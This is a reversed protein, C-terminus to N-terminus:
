RCRILIPRAPAGLIGIFSEILNGKGAAVGLLTPLQSVAIHAAIGALFGTMVPISLLNAIWGLRCLGGVVLIAGTMLALLSALGIYGPSGSAALVALAGAFIPTIASDAGASLLRSSGFLAFGLTGAIFVVFGTVPPFGGLRSTAMQEPIAVAALTLGAALDPGLDAFRWGVFGRFIPWAPQTM